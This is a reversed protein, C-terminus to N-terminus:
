NPKIISNIKQLITSKALHVKQQTEEKTTAHFSLYIKIK